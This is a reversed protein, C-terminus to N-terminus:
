CLFRSERRDAKSRGCSQLAQENFPDVTLGYFSETPLAMLGNEGLVRHMREALVSVTSVGYREISGLASVM